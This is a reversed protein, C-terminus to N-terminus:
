DASMHLESSPGAAFGNQRAWLEGVVVHPEDRAAVATGSGGGPTFKNPASM